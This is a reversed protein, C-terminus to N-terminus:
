AAIARLCTEAMAQRCARARARGPRLPRRPAPLPDRRQEGDRRAGDRGSRAGPLVLLGRRGHEAAADGLRRRRGLACPDRRPRAGIESKTNVVAPLRDTFEVTGTAGYMAATAATVREVAERLQDLTPPTSRACRAAWSPRPRSSTSRTAPASAASAHARGAPARRDGARRAHVAREYHAVDGRGHRRRRAAAGLPGVQGGLRARYVALVGAQLPGNRIGFRGAEITPDVHVGYVASLGDLVGDRIMVPAGSPAREENPQFFVRLRGRMEDARERASLAVGCAIAMHADHGCAHMRGPTESAYAAGSLELIPLGDMDARYGVTPGSEAGPATGQIEVAFGTGALPPGCVFGRADFWARLTEATEHEDFGLEPRRHLARRLATLEDALTATSVPALDPLM